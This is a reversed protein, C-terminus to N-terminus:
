VLEDRETEGWANPAKDRPSVAETPVVETHPYKLKERPVGFRSVTSWTLVLQWVCPFLLKGQVRPQEGAFAAEHM